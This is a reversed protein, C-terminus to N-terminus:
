TTRIKPVWLGGDKWLVGCIPPPGEGEGEGEGEGGPLQSGDNNPDSASEAFHQATGGLALINQYEDVNATGDKDLDGSASYPENESKMSSDFATYGETLSLGKVDSPMFVGSVVTVVEYTGTLVVGESFLADSAAIQMDTSLFLLAALAHRFDRLEEFAEEAALAM